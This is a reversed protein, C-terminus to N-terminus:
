KLYKRLFFGVMDDGEMDEKTVKGKMLGMNSKVWAKGKGPGVDRDDEEMALILEDLIAGMSHNRDKSMRRLHQKARTSLTTNLRTRTRKAKTNMGVFTSGRM